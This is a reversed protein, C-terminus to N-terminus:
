RRILPQESYVEQVLTRLHKLERKVGEIVGMLPKGEMESIPGPGLIFSLNVEKGSFIGKILCKIIELERIILACDRRYVRLKGATEDCTTLNEKEQSIAERLASNEEILSMQTSELRHIQQKIENLESPSIFMAEFQKLENTLKRHTGTLKIKEENLEEITTHIEVGELGRIEGNIQDLQKTLSTKNNEAETLYERLYKTDQMLRREGQALLHELRNKLDGNKKGAQELERKRETDYFQKRTFNKLNVQDASLEGAQCLTGLCRDRCIKQKSDMAPSEEEQGLDPGLVRGKSSSQCRGRPKDVPSSNPSHYKDCLRLKLLAPSINVVAYPDQQSTRIAKCSSQSSSVYRSNYRSM